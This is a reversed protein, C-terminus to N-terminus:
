PNEKLRAAKASSVAAKLRQVAAAPEEALVVASAVAVGDAGAAIVEAANDLSIGGIAILPIEPALEKVRAVTSTGVVPDPDAKTSTPFVPGIALYGIEAAAAEAAQQMSHTSVGLIMGDPLLHRVAYYPLDNQGLHIGDASVALAVDLHDNVIFPIKHARTVPLLNLVQQYYQKKSLRKARLQIAGAGSALVEEVLEEIGIAQSIALAHDVIVYVDPAFCSIHNRRCTM